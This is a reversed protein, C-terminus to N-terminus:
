HNEHHRQKPIRNKFPDYLNFDPSLAIEGKNLIIKLAEGAMISATLWVMPAFSTITGQNIRQLAVESYHEEIGEIAQLEYLMRLNLTKREEESITSIDKGTTPMNYVEELGPTDKTFVRVNGFPIAWGEVVPINHNRAFRSIIICPIIDDLALIAIDVDHMIRGINGTEVVNEKILNLGPNIRCLFNEAVDTKRQGVTDSFAFIQRNLNSIEFVDRDVITLSGVGSRVLIESIVGGLGGVGFVAIHSEKIHQQESENLLGINRETFQHYDIVM